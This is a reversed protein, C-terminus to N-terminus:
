VKVKRLCIYTWKSELKARVNHFNECLKWKEYISTFGTIFQNLKWCIAFKVKISIIWNRPLPLQKFIILLSAVFDFHFLRYWTWTHTWTNTKAISTARCKVGTLSKTILHNPWLKSKITAELSTFKNDCCNRGVFKRCERFTFVDKRVIQCYTLPMNLSVEQYLNLQTPQLAVQLLIQSQWFEQLTCKLNEVKYFKISLSFLM